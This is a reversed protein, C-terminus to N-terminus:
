RRQFKGDAITESSLARRKRLEGEATLSNSQISQDIVPRDDFQKPRASHQSRPRGRGGQAEFSANLKQM